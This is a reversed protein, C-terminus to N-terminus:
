QVNKFRAFKVYFAIPMLAVALAKHKVGKLWQKEKGLICGCDYMIGHKLIHTIKTSNNFSFKKISTYGKPNNIIIRKKNQTIGDTLYECFCYKEWSPVFYYKESVAYQMWAPSVFKENPFQPFRYEKLHNCKYFCVIEGRPCYNLFVDAATIKSISRPLEIGGMCTGDLNNKLALLGCCKDDDCSMELQNIAIYIADENFYDDSDLCVAYKTEIHDIAVNLASAKGGNSKKIYIIKFPSSTKWEEIIKETNDTSGDDIVMWVFDTSKQSMLSNFAKPLTYARNYTPTVVTLLEKKCEKDHKGRTDSM